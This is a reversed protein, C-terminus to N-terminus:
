RSCECDNNVNKKYGRTCTGRHVYKEYSNKLEHVRLVLDKAM